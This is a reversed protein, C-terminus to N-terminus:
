LNGNQQIKRNTVEFVRNWEDATDLNDRGSMKRRLNFVDEEDARTPNANAELKKLGNMFERYGERENVIEKYFGASLTVFNYTSAAFGLTCLLKWM